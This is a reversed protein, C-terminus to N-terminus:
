PTGLGQPDAFWVNEKPGKGITFQVHEEASKAYYNSHEPIGLPGFLFKNAFDVTTMGTAKFLIGSLIHLGVTKYNFEASIGQRGGLFDLSTETWDM